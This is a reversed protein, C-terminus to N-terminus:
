AAEKATRLRDYYSDIHRGNTLTIDSFDVLDIDFYNLGKATMTLAVQITMPHAVAVEMMRYETAIALVTWLESLVNGLKLRMQDPRVAIHGDSFLDGFPYGDVDGMYQQYLDSQALIANNLYLVDGAGDSGMEPPKDTVDFGFSLACVSDRADVIVFNLGTLLSHSLKVKYINDSEMVSHQVVTRLM